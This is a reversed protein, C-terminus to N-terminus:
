LAEGEDEGRTGHDGGRATAMGQHFRLLAPDGEEEAEGGDEAAEEGPAVARLRELSSRKQIRRPSEWRRWVRRGSSRWKLPTSTPPREKSEAVAPGLDALKAM